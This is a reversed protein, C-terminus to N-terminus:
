YFFFSGTQYWRVSQTQCFYICHAKVERDQQLGVRYYKNPFLVQAHGGNQRKSFRFIQPQSDWCVRDQRCPVTSGVLTKQLRQVPAGFFCRGTVVGVGLHQFCWSGRGLWDSLSQLWEQLIAAQIM